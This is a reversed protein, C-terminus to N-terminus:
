KTTSGRGRERLHKRQAVVVAAAGADDGGGGAHNGGVGVPRPRPQYRLARRTGGYLRTPPHAPPRAGAVHSAAPLQRRHQM